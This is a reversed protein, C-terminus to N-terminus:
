PKSAAKKLYQEVRAVEALVALIRRRVAAEQVSRALTLVEESTTRQLMVQRFAARWAAQGMEEAVDSMAGIEEDTLQGDSRIMHKVFICLALQDPESFEDLRM